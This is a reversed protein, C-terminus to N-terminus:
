IRVELKEGRALGKNYAEQLVRAMAVEASGASYRARERAQQVFLTPLQQSLVKRLRDFDMANDRHVHLTRGLGRILIGNQGQELGFTTQKLLFLLDDLVGLKQVQEVAAVASINEERGPVAAQISIRYGHKELLKETELADPDQATLRARYTYYPHVARTDRNKHLFFRAESATDFGTYISCWLTSKGVMKTMEYRQQGDLIAFLAGRRRESVDITGVLSADYSAAKQRIFPWNPPRQYREDIMLADLSLLEVRFPWDGEVPKPANVIELPLGRVERVLQFYHETPDDAKELEDALLGLAQQYPLTVWAGHEFNRLTAEVLDPTMPQGDRPSLIGAARALRTVIAAVDPRNPGIGSMPSFLRELRERLPAIQAQRNREREAVAARVGEIRTTAAKRQEPTLRPAPQAEEILVGAKKLSAEVNKTQRGGHPTGPLTLQKGNISVPEGDPDLVRFHDGGTQEVTYGKKFRRQLEAMEKSPLTVPPM